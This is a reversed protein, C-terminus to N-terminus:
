QVNIIYINADAANEFAVKSGDPAVAPTMPVMGNVDLVISSAGTVTNLSRLSSATFQEGNDLVITYVITKNDPMWSPHSGTGLSRLGTGDNNILWMGNGPVQFAVKTGDPSLAPNIIVKGSFQSLAPTAAAVGAPNSMMTVYLGTAADSVPLANSRTLSGTATARGSVADFKKNQRLTRGNEVVNARTMISRSDSSWAMKYGTGAESTLMQLHSGDANAVLIGAYNDTTVAIKSGDPSWVPSMLAMPSDLLKVPQSTASVQAGANMASLAGLALGLLYVKKMTNTKPNTISQKNNKIIEM